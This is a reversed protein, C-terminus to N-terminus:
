LTLTGHKLVTKGTDDVTEFAIRRPADAASSPAEWVRTTLAIGPRVPRAFRTRIASLRLDAAGLVQAASDSAVALLCMGQVISGPLGLRQAAADDVHLPANDGSVAAYCVGQDPLLTRTEEGIPTGRYVAAAVPDADPVIEGVTADVAEDRFFSVSQQTAVFVGDADRTEVVLHVTTGRKSGRIAQIWGHTTLTMGATIPRGFHMTHTEHLGLGDISEETLRRDIAAMTKWATEWAPVCVYVSPAPAAPDRAHAGIADCYAAISEATVAYPTGLTVVGIKSHDFRGNAAGDAARLSESLVV